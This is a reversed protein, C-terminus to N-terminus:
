PLTLPFLLLRQDVFWLLREQFAVVSRWDVNKAGAFVSESGPLYISRRCDLRVVHALTHYLSRPAVSYGGPFMEEEIRRAREQNLHFSCSVFSLSSLFRLDQERPLAQIYTRFNKRDIDIELTTQKRTNRNIDVERSGTGIERSGGGGGGDEYTERASPETNQQFKYELVRSGSASSLSCCARMRFCRASAVAISPAVM